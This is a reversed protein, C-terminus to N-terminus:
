NIQLRKISIRMSREANNVANVFIFARYNGDATEVWAGSEARLNLAYNGAGSLDLKELDLDDVYEGFQLRSLHRDYLQWTGRIKTAQNVGAPLTVGPLFQSDAAPAVLAHNFNVGDLARFLYALDIKEANAAAEAANYARMDSISFY